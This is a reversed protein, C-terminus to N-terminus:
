SSYFIALRQNILSHSSISKKPRPQRGIIGAASEMEDREPAHVRASAIASAAAAARGRRGNVESRADGGRAFENGIAKRRDLASLCRRLRWIAGGGGGGGGDVADAVICLLVEVVQEREAVRTRGRHLMGRGRGGRAARARALAVALAGTGASAGAAARREEGLGRRAAGPARM